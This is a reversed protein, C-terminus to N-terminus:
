ESFRSYRRKPKKTTYGDIDFVIYMIQEINKDLKITQRSEALWVLVGCLYELIGRQL